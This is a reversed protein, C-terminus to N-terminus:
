EGLISGRVVGVLVVRRDQIVLQRRQRRVVQGSMRKRMSMRLEPVLHIDTADPLPAVLRGDAVLDAALERAALVDIDLDTAYELLEFLHSFEVVGVDEVGSVVAHRDPPMPQLPLLVQILM